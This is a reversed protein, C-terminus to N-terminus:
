PTPRGKQTKGDTLRPQSKAMEVITELRILRRDHDRLESSIESLVSGAREVKDTLLLVEKLASMVDKLTSM